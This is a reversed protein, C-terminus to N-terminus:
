RFQFVRHFGLRWNEGDESQWVDNKLTGDWGGIVWLKDNHAVVRHANRPSFDASGTVETWDKGDQSWWVDNQRAGGDFGGVLWLRNNHVAVEHHSRESFLKDSDTPQDVETWDKGDQSWWVDNKRANGGVWGGIVWLKDDYVAVQHHSRESFLKDSDTPQDVETWDKGDESWWVDDYYNTGDWGGIVWLKDDYVAVQHDSRESFKDSNTEVKHWTVGDESRWVDNKYGDDALGGIVWLQDDYVVVQHSSRASFHESGRAEPPVETWTAGDQSWWVDNKFAGDHGGIVWLRDNHAVVTPSHRPSFDANNMAETWTAGDESRWVDNKVGGDWGGIVWLRNNHAVVQHYNRASFKDRDPAKEVETWKKGDQSWWVDNKPGGDFGGILWLRNNHAM